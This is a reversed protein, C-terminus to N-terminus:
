QSSIPSIILSLPFYSLDLKTLQFIHCPSSVGVDNTIQTGVM